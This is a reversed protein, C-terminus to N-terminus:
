RPIPSPRRSCPVPDRRSGTVDRGPVFRTGALDPARRYPGFDEYAVGSDLVAVTVGEGRSVEWADPIQILPLNWQKAFNTDNPAPVAAAAGRQSAVLALAASSAALAVAAGARTRHAKRM